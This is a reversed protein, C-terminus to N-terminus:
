RPGGQRRTVTSYDPVPLEVGMLRVVSEMFWQTARLSLHCVTKVVLACEIATDTYLRPRGGRARSGSDHRWSQIAQEDIWFTLNGRRVLARNYELWNRVRYKFIYDSKGM